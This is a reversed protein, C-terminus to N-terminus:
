VDSDSDSDSSPSSATSGDLVSYSSVMKIDARFRAARRAAFEECLLPIEMTKRDDGGDSGRHELAVQQNRIAKLKRGSPAHSNEGSSPMRRRRLGHQRHPDDRAAADPRLVSTMM